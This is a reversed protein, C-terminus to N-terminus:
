DCDQRWLCNLQGCSERSGTAFCAPNGEAQQIRRIMDAKKLQGIKVGMEKAITRIEAVNM